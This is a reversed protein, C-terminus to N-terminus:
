LEDNAYDNLNPLQSYNIGDATIAKDLSDLYEDLIQQKSLGEPILIRDSFLREDLNFKFM